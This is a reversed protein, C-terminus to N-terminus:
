KIKVDLGNIEVNDDLEVVLCRKGDINQATVKDTKNAKVNIVVDPSKIDMKTANIVNVAKLKIENDGIEEEYLEDFDVLKDEKIGSKRLINKIDYASLTPTESEVSNKEIIDVIQSHINQTVDYDVAIDAGEDKTAIRTILTNFKEKEDEASMIFECGLIKEVIAENPEKPTKNFVLVNNIDCTRDNFTPFMFGNVPKRVEMTTNDNHIIVDEKEDYCLGITTNSVPCFSVVVFDFVEGADELDMDQEDNKNKTPVTYSSHTIAILYEGDMNYAEKLMNVYDDVEDKEKLGGKVLKMLKSHVGETNMLEDNPFAYETLGKGIQGSLTKKCFELYEYADLAGLYTTNKVEDSLADIGAFKKISSWKVDGQKIYYAAVNNIVMSDNSIKFQKKIEALEKKNM